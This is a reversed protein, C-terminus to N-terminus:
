SSKANKNWEKEWQEFWVEKNEWFKGSQAAEVGDNFASRMWMNFEERTMMITNSPKDLYIRKVPRIRWGLADMQSVLPFKSGCHDYDVLELEVCLALVLDTRCGMHEFLSTQVGYEPHWAVWGDPKGGPEYEYWEDADKKTFTKPRQENTM